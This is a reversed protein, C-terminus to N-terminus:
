PPTRSSALNTVMADVGVETYEEGDLLPVVGEAEM